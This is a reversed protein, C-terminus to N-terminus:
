GRLAMAQFNILDTRPSILSGYGCPTPDLRNDTYKLNAMTRCITILPEFVERQMIRRQSDYGLNDFDASNHMAEATDNEAVMEEAIADIRRFRELQATRFKVVFEDSYESWDPAPKFGNDPNYMYLEPDTKHPDSEDIVSPDIVENIILGQGAHAALYIMADGPILDTKELHTPKGGPTMLM